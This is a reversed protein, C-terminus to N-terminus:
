DKKLNFTLALRRGMATHLGLNQFKYTRIAASDCSSWNSNGNSFDDFLGSKLFRSFEALEDFDEGSGRVLSGGGVFWGKGMSSM